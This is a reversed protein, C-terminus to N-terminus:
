SVISKADHEVKKALRNARAIIKSIDLTGGRWLEPCAEILEKDLKEKEEATLVPYEPGKSDGPRVATMSRDLSERAERIPDM